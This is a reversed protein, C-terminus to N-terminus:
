WPPTLNLVSDCLQCVEVEDKRIQIGKKRKTAEALGEFATTFLGPSFSCKHAGSELPFSGNEQTATNAVLPQEHSIM